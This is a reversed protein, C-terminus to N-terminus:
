PLEGKFIRSVKEQKAEFMGGGISVGMERVYGLELSLKNFNELGIEVKLAVKGSASESPAKPRPITSLSSFWMTDM